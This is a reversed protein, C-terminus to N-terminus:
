PLDQDAPSIGVVIIQAETYGPGVIPPKVHTPHRAAVDNELAWEAGGGVALGKMAGRRDGGVVAFRALCPHHRDGAGADPVDALGPARFRAGHLDAMFLHALDTRRTAVHSSLRAM